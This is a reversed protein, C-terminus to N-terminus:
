TRARRRRETDLRYLLRAALTPIPVQGNEWRWVTLRAVGLKSALRAQSLDLGRRIRKLTETDV